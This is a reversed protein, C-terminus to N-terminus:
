LSAMKNWAEEQSLHTLSEGTNLFRQCHAVLDIYRLQIGIREAPQFVTQLDPGINERNVVTKADTQYFVGYKGSLQCKRAADFIQPFNDKFVIKWTPDAVNRNQFIIPKHASPVALNLSLDLLGSSNVIWWHKMIAFPPDSKLQEPYVVLVSGGRTTIQEEYELALAACILSHATCQMNGCPQTIKGGTEQIADITSGDVPPTDETWLLSNLETSLAIANEDSLM